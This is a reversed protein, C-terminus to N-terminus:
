QNTQVDIKSLNNLDLANYEYQLISKTDSVILLNQNAILDYCDLSAESKSYVPNAPESLNYIKLGAIDDCVFLLGDAVGLGKPNQMPYSKILIPDSTNSIDIVDLSNIGTGCRNGGSRLTVYAYDGSVVVPDCSTVHLFKSVQVPADPVSNNYIYMGDSAGIYLHNNHAFLTEIGRGISVRSFVAPASPVALSFLQLEEGSIAYLYNDDLVFRAMSGAKGDTPPPPSAPSSSSGGGIGCANVALILALCALQTIRALIQSNLM